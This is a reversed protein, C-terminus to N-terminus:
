ACREQSAWRLVRQMRGAGDAIVRAPGDVAQTRRRVRSNTVPASIEIRTGQGRASTVKM